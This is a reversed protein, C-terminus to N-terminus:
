LVEHATIIIGVRYGYDFNAMDEDFVKNGCSAVYGEADNYSFFVKHVWSRNEYPDADVAFVIHVKM